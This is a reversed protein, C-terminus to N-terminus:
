IILFFKKKNWNFEILIIKKSSYFFKINILKIINCTHLQGVGRRGVRERRRWRGKLM